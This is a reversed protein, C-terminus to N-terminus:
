RTRFAAVLEDDELDYRTSVNDATKYVRLPQVSLDRDTAAYRHAAYYSAFAADVTTYEGDNSNVANWVAFESCM